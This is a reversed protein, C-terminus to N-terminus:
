VLVASLREFSGPTSIGCAWQRLDAIMAKETTCVLRATEMLLGFIHYRRQFVFHNCFFIVFAWCFHFYVIYMYFCICNHVMNLISIYRPCWMLTMADWVGAIQGKELLMSMPLIIMNFLYNRSKHSLNYVANGNCHRWMLAMALPLMPQKNFLKNLNIYFFCLARTIPEKNHFDLPSLFIGKLPGTIRFFIRKIVDDYFRM